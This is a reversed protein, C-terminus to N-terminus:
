ALLLLYNLICVYLYAFYDNSAIAIHAYWSRHNNDPLGTSIKSHSFSHLLYTM